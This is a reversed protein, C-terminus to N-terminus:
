PCLLQTRRAHRRHSTPTSSPKRAPKNPASRSILRASSTTETWGKRCGTRGQCRHWCRHARRWVGSVCRESFYQNMLEQESFLGRIREIFAAAINQRSRMGGGLQCPCRRSRLHERHLSTKPNAVSPPASILSTCGTRAPMRGNRPLPVPDDLLAVKEAALGRRLRVVQGDMLDIAPLLLMKPRTGLFSLALRADRSFKKAFTLRQIPKRRTFNRPMCAATASAQPSHDGMNVARASSTTTPPSQSIRICSISILTWPSRRIFPVARRASCMGDSIPIKLKEGRFRVVRGSSLGLGKRGPSEESSEFLLQYGPLHRSVAARGAAM